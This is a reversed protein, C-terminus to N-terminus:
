HLAKKLQLVFQDVDEISNLESFSIRINEKLKASDEGYFSALVHSPEITGATCASGTSIAIGALDLKTLLLDHNVNPFAINVVHPMSPGFENKYYDLGQIQDFLHAKLTAVHQFNTEMKDISIKLALAMGVLSHINETGARRKEEQEGGHILPDFLVDSHYLFGVGKPGHFKHGSASVFDAGIEQPLVPIKGMVQTADVHFVASHNALLAGVEKVPLLQGTENNSYMMSVILTDSRLEREVLNATILGDENPTIITVDFGFREHLYKVTNIVSPHEIATTIIHNGLSRHALAYGILATNNAESAGSTFTIQRESVALADAISARSNRILQAAHRGFSHISSPNGFTSLLTESMVEVVEPLVPTTAANDLYIM